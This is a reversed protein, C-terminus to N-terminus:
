PVVTTLPVRLVMTQGQREVRLILPNGSSEMAEQQLYTMRSLPVGNIILVRDGDRLGAMEAESGSIVKVHGFTDSFSFGFRRVPPVVIPQTAAADHAPSALRIRNNKQDITVIFHRLIDAGLFERDDDYAIAVIPRSITYQGITMDGNMRGIRSRTTGLFSRIEDGEVPTSAWRMAILRYRSLLLGQGTHGTDLILWAEEQALKVPVLLHGHDDSRLPLVDRGNPEPLTGHEISLKRRPYDITLLVDRFIPRALVLELQDSLGKLVPLEDVVADFNRFSANGVGLADLHAVDPADRTKKLADRMQLDPVRRQALHNRQAFAPTLMTAGAGTDVVGYSMASSGPQIVPVVPMGHAPLDITLEVREGTLNSQAPAWVPLKACGSVWLILLLLVTTAHAFKCHRKAIDFNM